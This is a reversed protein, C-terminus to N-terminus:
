SALQSVLGCVADTYRNLNSKRPDVEFCYCAFYGPAYGIRRFSAGRLSDGVATWM